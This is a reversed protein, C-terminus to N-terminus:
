SEPVGIRHCEFTGVPSTSKDIVIMEHTMSRGIEEAVKLLCYLVRNGMEAFCAGTVLGIYGIGVMSTKM